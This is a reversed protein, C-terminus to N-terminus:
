VTRNIIARSPYNRVRMYANYLTKDKKLYVFFPKVEEMRVDKINSVNTEFFDNDLFDKVLGVLSFATMVWLTHEYSFHFNVLSCAQKMRETMEKGERFAKEYERMFTMVDRGPKIFYDFNEIASYVREPRFATSFTDLAYAYRINEAIINNRM